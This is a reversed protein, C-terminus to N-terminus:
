SIRYLEAAEDALQGASVPTFDRVDVGVNIQHGQVRWVGHVHGCILPLGDDVPRQQVYRDEHHSDGDYPLHSVRVTIGGPLRHMDLRGSTVVSAFGAEKYLPVARRWRKHKEWCSDHNGAVLVKWGNLQSVPGLAKPTLAVDGVLYVTDKPDVVSNWRDVLADNM